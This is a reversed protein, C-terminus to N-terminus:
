SAPDFSEPLLHQRQTLLFCRFSGPYGRSLRAVAISSRPLARAFGSQEQTRRVFWGDMVFRERRDIPAILTLPDNISDIWCIAQHVTTLRTTSCSSLM